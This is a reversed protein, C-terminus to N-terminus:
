RLFISSRVPVFTLATDTPAAAWATTSNALTIYAATPAVVPGAPSALPVVREGRERQVGATQAPLAPHAITEAQRLGSACM